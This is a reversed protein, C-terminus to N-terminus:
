KRITGPLSRNRMINVGFIATVAAAAVTALTETLDFDDYGGGTDVYAGWLAKLSEQEAPDIVGDAVAANYANTFSAFADRAEGTRCGALPLCCVLAILLTKM